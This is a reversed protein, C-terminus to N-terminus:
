SVLFLNQVKGKNKVWFRGILVEFAARISPVIIERLKYLMLLRSQRLVRKVQQSVSLEQQYLLKDESLLATAM